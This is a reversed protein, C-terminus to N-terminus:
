PIAPPKLLLLQSRLTPFFNLNVNPGPLGMLYTLNTMMVLWIPHFCHGSHHHVLLDCLRLDFNPNQHHDQHRSLHQGQPYFFVFSIYSLRKTMDIPLVQFLMQEFVSDLHKWGTLVTEFPRWGICQHISKIMLMAILVFIDRLWPQQRQLQWVYDADAEPFVKVRHSWTM